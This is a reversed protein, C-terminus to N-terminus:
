PSGSKWLQQVGGEAIVGFFLTGDVDRMGWAGAQSGESGPVIDKVLQTGAATGDSTWLEQGHIGDDGVFCPEGNVEVIHGPNSSRTTANIDKLLKTNQPTGDSIWYEHGSTGDDAGLLLLGGMDALPWAGSGVDGPRIDKVMSLTGSVIKWLEGGTDSEYNRFYLTNGVGTMNFHPLARLIAIWAEQICDEADQASLGCAGVLRRVLPRHIRYFEDWARSLGAGPEGCARLSRLYAQTRELLQPDIDPRACTGNVGATKLTTAVTVEEVTYQRLAVLSVTAGPSPRTPVTFGPCTMTVAELPSGRPSGGGDAGALDRGGRDARRRATRMEQRAKRLSVIM